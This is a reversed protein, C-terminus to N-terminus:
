RYMAGSNWGSDFETTSPSDCCISLKSDDLFAENANFSPKGSAPAATRTAAQLEPPPELLEEDAGAEGADDAAAPPLEDAAPPLEDAIVTSTCELLPFLKRVSPEPRESYKHTGSVLLIDVHEPAHAVAHGGSVV